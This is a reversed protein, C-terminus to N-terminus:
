ERRNCGMPRMYRIMGWGSRSDTGVRREESRERPRELLLGRANAAVADDPQLRRFADTEVKEARPSVGIQYGREFTLLVPQRRLLDSSCVDSSWDRSFSTHRRRSSFFCLEHSC